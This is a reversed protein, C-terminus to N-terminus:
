VFKVASRVYIIIVVVLVMVMFVFAMVFSVSVVFKVFIIKVVSRVVGPLLAIIKIAILVNVVNQVFLLVM